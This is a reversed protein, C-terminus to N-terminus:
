VTVRTEGANDGQEPTETPLALAAFARPPPYPPLREPRLCVGRGLATIVWDLTYPEVFRTAQGNEIPAVIGDLVFPRLITKWTHLASTRNGGFFKAVRNFTIGGEDRSYKFFELWYGYWETEYTPRHQPHPPAAPAPEPMPPAIDAYRRAHEHGRRSYYDFVDAPFTAAFGIGLGLAFMIVIGTWNAPNYLASACSLMIGLGVSQLVRGSHETSTM